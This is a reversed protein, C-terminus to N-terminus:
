ELTDLAGVLVVSSHTAVWERLVDDMRKQWGNGTARFFAVVEPSYRVSLLVKRDSKAPRGKRVPRMALIEADSPEYTDPDSAIGSAIRADEEPTPIKLSVRHSSM